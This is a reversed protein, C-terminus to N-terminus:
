SAGLDPDIVTLSLFGEGLQKMQGDPGFWFVGKWLGPTLWQSVFAEGRDWDVTTGDLAVAPPLTDRFLEQPTGGDGPYTFLRAGTHSLELRRRSPAHDFWFRFQQGRFDYGALPGFGIGFASPRILDPLPTLLPM